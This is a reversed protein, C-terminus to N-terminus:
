SSWYRPEASRTEAVWYESLETYACSPRSDISPPVLAIALFMLSQPTFVRSEVFGAITSPPSLSPTVGSSHVYANEQRALPPV